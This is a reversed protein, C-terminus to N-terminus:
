YRFTDLRYFIYTGLDTQIDNRLIGSNRKEKNRLMQCSFETVNHLMENCEM